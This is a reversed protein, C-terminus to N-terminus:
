AARCTRRGSSGTACCGSGCPKPWRRTACGRWSRLIPESLLADDPTRGDYLSTLVIKIAAKVLPPCTDETWAAAHLRRRPTM